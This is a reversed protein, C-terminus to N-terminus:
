VYQPEGTMLESMRSSNIKKQRNMLEIDALTVEQSLTTGLSEDDVEVENEFVNSTHDENEESKPNLEPISKNSFDGSTM